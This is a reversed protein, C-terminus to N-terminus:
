YLHLFYILNGEVIEIKLFNFHSKDKGAFIMTLDLLNLAEIQSDQNIKMTFRDPLIIYNPMNKLYVYLKLGYNNQSLKFHHIPHRGLPADDWKLFKATANYKKPICASQLLKLVSDTSM